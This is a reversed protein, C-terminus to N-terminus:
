QQYWGIDVLHAGDDGTGGSLSHRHRPQPVARIQDDSRTANATKHHRQVIGYAM